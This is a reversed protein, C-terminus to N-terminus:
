DYRGRFFDNFVMAILMALLLGFGFVVLVRLPRRLGQLNLMGGKLEDWLLERVAGFGLAIILGVVATLTLRNPRVQSM